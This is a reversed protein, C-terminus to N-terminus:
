LRYRVRDPRVQRRGGEEDGTRKVVAVVGPKNKNAGRARGGGESPVKRGIMNM